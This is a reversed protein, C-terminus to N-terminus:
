TTEQDTVALWCHAMSRTSCQNWASTAPPLFEQLRRVVGPVNWGSWAVRSGKSFGSAAGSSQTAGFSDAIAGRFAGRCKIHRPNLHIPSMVQWVPRAPGLRRTKARQIAQLPTVYSIQFLLGSHDAAGGGSAQNASIAKALLLQAPEAGCKVNSTKGLLAPKDIRPQCPRGHEQPSHCRSPVRSQWVKTIAKPGQFRRPIARSFPFCYRWNAQWVGSHQTQM